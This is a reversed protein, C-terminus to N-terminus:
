WGMVPHPTQCKPNLKKNSTVSETFSLPTTSLLFMQNNPIYPFIRLMKKLQIEHLSVPPHVCRSSTLLLVTRNSNKVGSPKLTYVSLQKKVTQNICAFYFSKPDYFIGTFPLTQKKFAAKLKKLTSVKPFVNFSVLM